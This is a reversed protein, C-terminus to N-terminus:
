FCASNSSSILARESSATSLLEPAPQAQQISDIRQDKRFIDVVSEPTRNAATQSQLGQVINQLAVVPNAGDVITARAQQVANLGRVTDGNSSQMIANSLANLSLGVGLGVAPGGYFSAAKSAAFSGAYLASAGMSAYFATMYDNPPPISLRATDQRFAPPRDQQEQQQQQQQQQIPTLPTAQQQQTTPTPPPAQPMEEDVVASDPPVGFKISNDYDYQDIGFEKQSDRESQDQKVDTIFQRMEKQGETMQSLSSYTAAGAVGGGLVSLGAPLGMASGILTGAVGVVGSIRDVMSTQDLADKVATGADVVGNVIAAAGQSASPLDSSSGPIPRLESDKFSKWKAPSSQALAVEGRSMSGDPNFADVQAMLVDDKAFENKFRFIM